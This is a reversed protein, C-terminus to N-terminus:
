WYFVLHMCTVCCLPMFCITVEYCIVYKDAPDVLKVQTTIILPKEHKTCNPMMSPEHSQM